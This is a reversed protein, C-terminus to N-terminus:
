YKCVAGNVLPFSAPLFPDRISDLIPFQRSFFGSLQLLLLGLDVPGLRFGSSISLESGFLAGPDL